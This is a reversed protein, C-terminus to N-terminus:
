IKLRVYRSKEPHSSGILVAFDRYSQARVYFRWYNPDVKSSPNHTQGCVIGLEKLYSRVELLDKQNKQAFYLYYRVSRSKAIGGEADFYGRIYDRQRTQFLTQNKRSFSKSFEVVYVSRYKGEKYTWASGGLSRIGNAIMEVFAKSKQSVRYTTKTETADHLVGLIYAKTIM